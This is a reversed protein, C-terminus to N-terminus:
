MKQAQQPEDLIDPSLKVTERPKPFDARFAAPCSEAIGQATVTTHGHRIAASYVQTWATIQLTEYQQLTM